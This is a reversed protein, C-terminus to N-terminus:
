LFLDTVNLQGRWGCLLYVWAEREMGPPNQRRLLAQATRVAVARGPGFPQNVKCGEKTNGSPRYWSGEGLFPSRVLRPLPQPPAM